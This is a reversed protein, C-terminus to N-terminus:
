VKNEKREKETENLGNLNMSKIDINIQYHIKKVQFFIEFYLSKLSSSLKSYVEKLILYKM